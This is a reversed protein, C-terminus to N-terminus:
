FNFRNNSQMFHLLNMLNMNVPTLEDLYKAPVYLTTPDYEPHNPRRKAADRINEPLLWDIKNHRYVVPVDIIDTTDKDKVRSLSCSEDNNAKLKDEFSLKADISELKIKKKAAGNGSSKKRSPEKIDDNKQGNDSENEDNKYDPDSDSDSDIISAIKRKKM